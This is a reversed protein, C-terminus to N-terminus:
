CLITFCSYEYFNIKFILILLLILSFSLSVNLLIYRAILFFKKKKKRMLSKKIPRLNQSLNKTLYNENFLVSKLFYYSLSGCVFCITWLFFM